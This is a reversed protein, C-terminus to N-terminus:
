EPNYGNVYVTLIPLENGKDDLKIELKERNIPEIPDGTKTLFSIDELSGLLHINNIEEIQLKPTLALREAEKRAVDPTIAEAGGHNEIYLDVEKDTVQHIVTVYFVVDNIANGDEDYIVIQEGTNNDILEIIYKHLEWKAFLETSKEFKKTEFNIKEGSYDKNDYWGLFDYGTRTPDEPTPVQLTDKDVLVSSETVKGGMGYFTVKKSPELIIIAFVILLAIGVGGGIFTILRKILKSKNPDKPEKTTKVDEKLVESM